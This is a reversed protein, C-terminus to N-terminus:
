HKQIWMIGDGLPLLLCSVRPDNSVFDNFAKIGRSEKDQATPDVVKGYWLVNDTLIMGGTRLKPLVAEYYARYNQKDADIFILDFPGTLEPLLDLAPGCQFDVKDWIGAEQWYKKYVFEREPNRDLTTIKGGAALGESMCLTGYGTFTGIELIHKPRLMRSLLSLFRGQVPSTLMRPYLVKLHTERRLRALLDPEPASHATIYDQLATSIISM